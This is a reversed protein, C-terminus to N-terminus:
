YALKFAENAARNQNVNKAVEYWYEPSADSPCGYAMTTITNQIQLDLGKRFKVVTTKSDTYGVEMILEVFEDLYNNISRSEQYYSTSELKNIAAIDSHAPCFDKRFEKHFEEWNLFKLYGGHKEEWQFIQEAWKAARESKM